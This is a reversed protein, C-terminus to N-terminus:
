ELSPGAEWTEMKYLRKGTSLRIKKWQDEAFAANFKKWTGLQIDIGVLKKKKDLFEKFYKIVGYEKNDPKGIYNNFIDEVTFEDGALQLQLYAKKINATNIELQLNIQQNVITKTSAKQKKANWDSSSIFEGSSFEKRKKSYTIRCKIPCLGKSNEKSKNLYFLVLLSKQNM